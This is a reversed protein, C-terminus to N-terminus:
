IDLAVNAAPRAVDLKKNKDSRVQRSHYESDIPNTTADGPTPNISQWWSSPQKQEMTSM